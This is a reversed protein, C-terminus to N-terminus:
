CPSSQSLAGSKSLLAGLCFASSLRFLRSVRKARTRPITAPIWSLLTFGSLYGICLLFLSFYRVGIAGPKTAMLIIYGILASVM